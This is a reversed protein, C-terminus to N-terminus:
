PRSHTPCSDDQQSPRPAARHDRQPEGRRGAVRQGPRFVPPDRGDRSPARSPSSHVRGPSVVSRLGRRRTEAISGSTFRRIVRGAASRWGVDDLWVIVDANRFLSDTWGVHIGETVWEPSGAIQVALRARDESPNAEPHAAAIEDLHFAPLGLATSLRLAMTTKGTGSGGVIHIRSAPEIAPIAASSGGSRSGLRRYFEEFRAAITAADFQSASRRANEGLRTRLAEDALLRQMAQALAPADGPPVLLGNEGDEIMDVIGGVRTGIVPRGALMAERVVGPLPDPWISPTVGFLARDWAAIVAAHPASHIVTVGAPAAPTDPWPTGILVLPPPDALMSHAAFLTGLGKHPQLAGVFLIFPEEPLEDIVAQVRAPDPKAPTSRLVIDPITAIEREVGALLDRRVVDAVHHSVSHVATVKRLLLRRSARIGLVAATGKATGYWSTAHRMCRALGPGPCETGNLLMSRTACSYGYDRVSLVVPVDRGVTALAM